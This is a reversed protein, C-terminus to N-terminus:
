KIVVKRGNVIYIGKSGKKVKQGSLTYVDTAEPDVMKVFGLDTTEGDDEFVLTIRAGPTSPASIGTFYARYGKMNANVGDGPRVQGSSTVGYMNETFNGATIPTYTGQFIAGNKSTNGASSTVVYRGTLIVGDSYTPASETFVLLPTGSSPTASTSFALEHTSSNYSDLVYYKCGSGFVYNMNETSMSFPVCFTNWGSKASYKLKVKKNGAQEIAAYNSEDLTIDEFSSAQPTSNINLSTKDNNNGNPTLVISASKMSGTVEPDYNFTVTFSRSDGAPIDSFSSESLTFSSPNSGGLTIAVDMDSTGLNTITYTRSANGTVNGFSTTTNPSVFLPELATASATITIKDGEDYTPTVTITSTKYGLSSPDYNFTITFTESEDQAVTLSSPSVTFFTENSSSINVVMEGYGTNSVTIERSGNDKLNGLSAYTSSVSLIPQTIATASATISVADEVDYTPTVTIIASREGSRDTDFNFMVDFTSSEGAGLTMQAKSVSFETANDSIIDVTMSGTGSNTVTYTKSVDAKVTGFTANENPTVTLEPTNDNIATATADFSLTNYEGDSPTFTLTASKEGLANSNYNFTFTFDQYGGASVTTAASPSVSFDEADEGSISPTVNISSSGNNTIRYVKNTSEYVDGFEANENPSASITKSPPTEYTFVTVPLWISNSLSGGSATHATYTSYSDRWLNFELGANSGKQTCYIGVLLDNEGSYDFCNSTFPINLSSKTPDLTGTYVLTSGDSGILVPSSAYASITVEKLFVYFEADGWTSSAITKLSFAMNTIRKGAMALLKGKPIQFECKAEYTALLNGAIPLNPISYGQNAGSSGKDVTLEDGWASSGGGVILAAILALKSLLSKSYLYFIKKMLM